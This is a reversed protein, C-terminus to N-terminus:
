QEEPMKGSRIFRCTQPDNRGSEDPCQCGYFDVRFAPYRGKALPTHSIVATINRRNDSSAENDCGYSSEVEGFDKIVQLRRGKVEVLQASTKSEGMWFAGGYLLLEEVGNGNLDSTRLIGIGYFPVNVLLQNGSFIVLRSDNQMDVTSGADPNGGRVVYAIERANPATFSGSVIQSISPNAGSRRYRAGLAARLIRRAEQASLVPEDYPPKNRIFDYLTERKTSQAHCLATLLTISMLLFGIKRM